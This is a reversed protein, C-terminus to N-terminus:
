IPCQSVLDAQIGRWGIIHISKLKSLASMFLKLYQLYPVIHTRDDTQLAMNLQTHLAHCKPKWIMTYLQIASSEDFSLKNAPISSRSKVM